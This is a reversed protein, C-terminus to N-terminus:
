IVTDKCCDFTFKTTEPWMIGKQCTFQVELYLKLESNCQTVPPFHVQGISQIDCSTKGSCLEDMTSLVDSHCHLSGLDSKVCRGIRMRGYLAREMIIVEDPGCQATFRESDCYERSAGPCLIDCSTEHTLQFLRPVAISALVCAHMSMLSESTSKNETNCKILGIWMSDISPEPNWRHSKCM